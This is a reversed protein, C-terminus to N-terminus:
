NIKTKKKLHPNKPKRHINEKYQEKNSFNTRQQQRKPRRIIVEEYEDEDYKNLQPKRQQKPKEIYIKDDDRADDIFSGSGIDITKQKIEANSLMNFIQKVKHILLKVFYEYMTVTICFTLFLRFGLNYDTLNEDNINFNTEIYFIFIALLISIIIVAKRITFKFIKGKKDFKFHYKEANKDYILMNKFVEVGFLIM